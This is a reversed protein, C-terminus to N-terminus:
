VFVSCCVVGVMVEEGEVVEKNVEEFERQRDERAEVGSEDTGDVREIAMMLSTM